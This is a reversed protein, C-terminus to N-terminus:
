STSQIKSIGVVVSLHDVMRRRQARVPAGISVPLRGSCLRARCWSCKSKPEDKLKVAAGGPAEVVMSIATMMAQLAAFENQRVILHHHGSRQMSRAMADDFSVQPLRGAGGQVITRTGAHLVWETELCHFCEARLVNNM